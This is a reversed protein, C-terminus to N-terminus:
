FTVLNLHRAVGAKCAEEDGVNMAKINAKVDDPLQWDVRKGNRKGASYAAASLKNNIEGLRKYVTDAGPWNPLNNM